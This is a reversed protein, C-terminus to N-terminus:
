CPYMCPIQQVYGVIIITVTEIFCQSFESVLAMLRDDVAQSDTSFRQILDGTAANDVWALPMHVVTHLMASFLAESARLNGSAELTNFLYEALVALASGIAFVGAHYSILNVAAGHTPSNIIETRINKLTWTPLTIVIQRVALALFYISVFKPGGLAKIYIWYAAHSLERVESATKPKAFQKPQDKDLNGSPDKERPTPAVEWDAKEPQSFTGQHSVLLERHEAHVTNDAVRVVCEAKPLCLELQHTALLRTRGAGLPGNLADLVHKAVHADLASLIDDMLITSVESYLARALSIRARQGGSVKVGQPGILTQDGNALLEFDQVLACAELVSNYRALSFKEGFLINDKISTSQLWPTQTVFAVPSGHVSCPAEINGNLLDAEGLMAALMLSKGSGTDGHIISLKEAPFHINVNKLMFRVDIDQAAGLPSKYGTPWTFTADSFVIDGSRSNLLYDIKDPTRLFAEIRRSSSSASLYDQVVLPALGLTGQLQPLLELITFITSATTRGELYAHAFISVGSVILPSAIKWMSNIAQAHFDQAEARLEADRYKTVRQKWMEEIGQLKIHHLAKIMEGIVRDKQDRTKRLEKQAARRRRVIITNIPMSALTVLLTMLMGQWGLLEKIFALAMLFQIVSLPLIYHIAAFKSVTTADSTLLSNVLPPRSHGPQPPLHTNLDAGTSSKLLKRYIATIFQARIPIGLESWQIWNQHYHVVTECTSSLAIGFLWPWAYGANSNELCTVLRMVCYPSGFALLTRIITLIWQRAVVHVRQNFIQTLLTQNSVSLLPQSKSRTNYNLAPLASLKSTKGAIRIAERSWTMSCRMIISSSSEADVACGNESFLDPTRRVSLSTLGITAAILLLVPREFLATSQLDVYLQQILILTAFSAQRIGASYVALSDQGM